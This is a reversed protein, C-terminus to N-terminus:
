KHRKSEKSSIEKAVKYAWKLRAKLKQAYNEHSPGSIDTQTVGFEIDIPLRPHHSYMFFILVLVQLMPYQAIILMHLFGNKGIGKLM